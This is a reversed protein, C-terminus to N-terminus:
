TCTEAARLGREPSELFDIDVAETDTMSLCLSCTAVKTHGLTVDFSPQSELLKVPADPSLFTVWALANGDDDPPGWLEARMSWPGAASRAEATLVTTPWKDRLDKSFQLRGVAEHNM